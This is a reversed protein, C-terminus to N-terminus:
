RRNPSTGSETAFTRAASPRETVYTRFTYTIAFIVLVVALLVSLASAVVAVMGSETGAQEARPPNLATDGTRPDYACTPCLASGPEVLGQCRPCVLM